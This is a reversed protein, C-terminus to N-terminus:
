RLVCTKGQWYVIVPFIAKLDPYQALIATYQPDESALEVIESDPHETCQKDIWYGLNKYYVRDAIAKSEASKFNVGLNKIAFRLTSEISSTTYLSTAIRNQAAYIHPRSPPEQTRISALAEPKETGIPVPTGGAKDQKSELISDAASITGEKSPASVTSPALAFAKSPAPEAPNGDTASLTGAAVSTSAPVPVPPSVASPTAEALKDFRAAPIDVSGAAKGKEEPVVTEMRASRRELEIGPQHPFPAPGPANQLLRDMPPAAPQQVPARLEAVQNKGADGKSGYQFRFFMVGIVACVLLAGLVPIPLSFRFLTKKEPQAENPLGDAEHSQLKMYVALIEQCIACDSVHAEFASMEQQSLSAELYAAMLNESVCHDPTRRVGASLSKRILGDIPADRV